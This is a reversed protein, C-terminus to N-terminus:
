NFLWQLLRRFTSMPLKIKPQPEITERAEYSAALRRTQAEKQLAEMRAKGFNKQTVDNYM